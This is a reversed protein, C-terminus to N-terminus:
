RTPSVHRAPRRLLAPSRRTYHPHRAAAERRLTVAGAAAGIVCCLGALALAGGLVPDAGAPTAALPTVRLALWIGTLGIGLTLLTVTGAWASATGDGGIRRRRMGM